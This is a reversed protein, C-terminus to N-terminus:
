FINNFVSFTNNMSLLGYIGASVFLIIRWVKNKVIFALLLPMASFVPSSFIELFRFSRWYSYGSSKIFLWFLKSLMLFISIVIILTDTFKSNGQIAPIDKNLEYGCKLCYVSDDSNKTQCNKCIM